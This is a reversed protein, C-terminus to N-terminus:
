KLIRGKYYQSWFMAFIHTYGWWFSTLFRQRWQRFVVHFILRIWTVLVDITESQPLKREGDVFHSTSFSGYRITVLVSIHGVQHCTGFRDFIYTVIFESKIWRSGIVKFDSHSSEFFDCMKDVEHCHCKHDITFHYHHWM